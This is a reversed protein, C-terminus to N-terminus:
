GTGTGEPSHAEAVDVSDELISEFPRALVLEVGLV